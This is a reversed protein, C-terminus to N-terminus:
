YSKIQTDIYLRFTGLTFDQDLYYPATHNAMKWALRVCASIYHLLPLCTELCPYEHLTSLVQHICCFLFCFSLFLFFFTLFFYYILIYIYYNVKLIEPILIENESPRNYFRGLACELEYYQFSFNISRAHVLFHHHYVIYDIYFLCLTYM